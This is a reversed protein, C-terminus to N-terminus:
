LRAARRSVSQAPTTNESISVAQHLAAQHLISDAMEDDEYSRAIDMATKGDNDKAWIDIGRRLLIELVPHDEEFTGEKGPDEFFASVWYHLATAKDASKANIAAGNGLMWDLYKPSSLGFFWLPPTGGNLDIPQTLLYDVIETHNRSIACAFPVPAREQRELNAGREVLLRVIELNNAICAAALPSAGNLGVRFDIDAGMDLAMRTYALGTQICRDREEQTPPVGQVSSKIGVAGLLFRNLGQNKEADEPWNELFERVGSISGEQMAGHLKSPLM